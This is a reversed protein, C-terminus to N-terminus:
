SPTMRLSDRAPTPVRSVTVILVETAQSFRFSLLSCKSSIGTSLRSPRRARRRQRRWSSRCLRTHRYQPERLQVVPFTTLTVLAASLSPFCITKTKREGLSKALSQPFIRRTERLPSLRALFRTSERAYYNNNVRQFGGRQNERATCLGLQRDLVMSLVMATGQM